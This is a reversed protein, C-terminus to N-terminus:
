CWKDCQEHAWQDCQRRDTYRDLWVDEEYGVWEDNTSSGALVSDTDEGPEIYEDLPLREHKLESPDADDQLEEWSNLLDVDPPIDVEYSRANIYARFRAKDEKDGSLPDAQSPVDEAPPTCVERHVQLAGAHAAASRLAAEISLQMPVNNNMILIFAQPSGDLTTRAAAFIRPSLQFAAKLEQWPL